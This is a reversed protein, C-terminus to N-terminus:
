SIGSKLRKTLIYYEFARLKKKKILVWNKENVLLIIFFKRNNINELSKTLGFYWMLYIITLINM